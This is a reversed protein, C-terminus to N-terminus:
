STEVPQLVRQRSNLVDRCLEEPLDTRHLGLTGVVEHAQAHAADHSVFHHLLQARGSLLDPEEPEELRPRRPRGRRALESEPPAHRCYEAKHRVM